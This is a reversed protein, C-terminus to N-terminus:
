SHVNKNYLLSGDLVSKKFIVVLIDFLMFGHVDAVDENELRDQWERLEGWKKM